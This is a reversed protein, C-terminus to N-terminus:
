RVGAHRALCCGDRGRRSRVLRGGCRSRSGFGGDSPSRRRCHWRTHVSGRLLYPRNSACARCRGLCLVEASIGAFPVRRCHAMGGGRWGAYVHGAFPAFSRGVARGRWAVCLSPRLRYNLRSLWKLKGAPLRMACLPEDGGRQVVRVFLTVDDLLPFVLVGVVDSAPDSEKLWLTPISSGDELAAEVAVDRGASGVIRLRAYGKGDGRCLVLNKIKM